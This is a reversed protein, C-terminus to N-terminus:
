RGWLEASTREGNPYEVLEIPTGDPDNVFFMRVGGIEVPDQAPRYGLDLVRRHAADLDTVSFSMNTYGLHPGAVPAETSGLALLEVMAGGVLGGVMRGRAGSAGTVAELSAGELEVDFVVDFGLLRRYFELSRELDSVGVCLHSFAKVALGTDCAAVDHDREDVGGVM